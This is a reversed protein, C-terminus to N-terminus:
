QIVEVPIEVKFHMQDGEKTASIRGGLQHVIQYTVWLGLGHGGDSLSFFPEFLHAVQEATPMVGSNAVLLHLNGERTGFDCAIAGQPLSAAVANLLLNILIQRLRKEDTIVTRPLGAARDIRLTLGKEQARLRFM